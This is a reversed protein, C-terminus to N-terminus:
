YVLKKLSRFPTPHQSLAIDLLPLKESSIIIIIIIFCTEKERTSLMYLTKYSWLPNVM